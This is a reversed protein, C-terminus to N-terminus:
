AVPPPGDESRGRLPREEMKILAILSVILCLVGLVFVWRFVHAPDGGPTSATAAVATTGGGRIPAVGVGALV